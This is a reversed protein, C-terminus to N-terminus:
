RPGKVLAVVGSLVLSAIWFGSRVLDAKRLLSSGSSGTSGTRAAERTVVSSIGADAVPAAITVIVILVLYSAFAEVPLIRAVAVTTGFMVIRTAGMSLAVWKM